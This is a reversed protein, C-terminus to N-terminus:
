YEGAGGAMSRYLERVAGVHAALSFQKARVAGAEGMQLRRADDNLLGAVAERMADTDYPEILIGQRGDEVVEPIAGVRFAVVPVRHAMAEVLVRGFGEYQSPMILVDAIAYWPSVNAQMGAWIVRAKFPSQGIRSKLASTLVPNFRDNDGVFLLDLQPFTEALGSFIEWAVEPQKEPTLRGVFLLNMTRTEGEDVMAPAVEVDLGNHIVVPKLWPWGAFRSATAHSNCVVRSVLRVLIPDLRPDNVAVRCHFISPVSVSKGAVGAYFAARPTQAHLLSIGSKGLLRRWVAIAAISRLGIPPMPVIYVQHGAARARAALEGEGAVALSVAVGESRLGDMLQLMSLEGGGVIETHHNVMLIDSMEEEGPYHRKGVLEM